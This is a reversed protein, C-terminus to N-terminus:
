SGYYHMYIIYGLWVTVSVDLIRFPVSNIVKLLKVKWDM